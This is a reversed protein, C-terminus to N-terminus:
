SPLNVPIVFLPRLSNLSLKEFHEFRLLTGKCVDKLQHTDPLLSHRINM